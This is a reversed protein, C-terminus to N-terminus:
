EFLKIVFESNKWEPSSFYDNWLGVNWWGSNNIISTVNKDITRKIFKNEYIDSSPKELFGNDFNIEDILVCVGSLYSIYKIYIFVDEILSVHGMIMLLEQSLFCGDFYMKSVNGPLSHLNLHQQQSDMKYCVIRPKELFQHYQSLLSDWGLWVSTGACQSKGLVMHEGWPVFFEIDRFKTKWLDNYITNLHKLPPQSKIVVLNDPKVYKRIWGEIEDDSTYMGIHVNEPNDANEFISEVSRKCMDLDNGVIMFFTRVGGELREFIQSKMKINGTTDSDLQKEHFTVLPYTVRHGLPEGPKKLNKLWVDVAQGIKVKQAQEVLYRATNNSIYYSFAGYWDFVYPCPRPEGIVGNELTGHVIHLKEQARLMHETPPNTHIPLVDGMGLYVIQIKEQDIRSIIRSWKDYWEHSFCVDDEFVIGGGGGESIKKWTNYHSLIISSIRPNSRYDNSESLIKDEDVEFINRIKSGDVAPVIRVEKWLVDSGIRKELVRLRDKRRELNIVYM